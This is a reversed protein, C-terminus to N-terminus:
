EADYIAMLGALVFCGLVYLLAWGMLWHGLLMAIMLILGLVVWAALMVKIGRGYRDSRLFFVLAAGCIMLNYFQILKTLGGQWSEVMNGLLFVAAFLVVNSVIWFRRWKRLNNM